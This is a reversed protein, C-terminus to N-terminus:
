QQERGGKKMIIIATPGTAIIHLADFGAGGAPRSCAPLLWLCRVQTPAGDM